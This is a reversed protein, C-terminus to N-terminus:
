SPYQTESTCPALPTLCSIYLITVSTKENPIVIYSHKLHAVCIQFANELNGRCIEDNTWLTFRNSHDSSNLMSLTVGHRRSQGEGTPRDM